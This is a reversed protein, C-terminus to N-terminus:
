LNNIHIQVPDATDRGLVKEIGEKMAEFLSLTLTLDLNPGSPCLFTVVVTQKRPDNSRMVRITKVEDSYHDITEGKPHKVLLDLNHM